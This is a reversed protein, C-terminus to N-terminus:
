QAVVGVYISPTTTATGTGYWTAYPESAAAIGNLYLTDKGGNTLNETLDKHWVHWNTSDADLDKVIFM